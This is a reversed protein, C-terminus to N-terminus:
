HPEHADAQGLLWYGAAKLWEKNFGRRELEARVAKSTTSEGAIFAYCDGDPFAHSAAARVLLDARGPEVGDRHLWVVELDAKTEFEQHEHADAVELIAVAKAGSPLEEIRRGIAPLATEDGILLYWDFAMPIVTSGRPGAVVLDQGVAAMAAWGSAPGDGHLVFDVDLEQSEPRYYRPTYDRAEPKPKDQPFSIGEPGVTPVVAKQGPEPFLIKVHDDYSPSVFGELAPGALTVRLMRPTVRRVATVALHRVKIDHRLKQPTRNIVTMSMFYRKGATM